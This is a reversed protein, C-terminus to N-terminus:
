TSTERVFCFILLRNQLGRMRFVLERKLDHSGQWGLISPERKIIFSLSSYQSHSRKFVLYVRYRSCLSGSVHFAKDNASGSRFYQKSGQDEFLCFDKNEHIFESVHLAECGEKLDKAPIASSGLPVLPM